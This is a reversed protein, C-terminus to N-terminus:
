KKPTKKRRAQGPRSSQPQKKKEKTEPPAEVKTEYEVREAVGIEILHIGQPETVEITEGVRADPISASVFSGKVKVKM